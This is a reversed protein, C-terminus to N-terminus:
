ETNRFHANFAYPGGVFKFGHAGAVRTKGRYRPNLGGLKIMVGMTAPDDFLGNSVISNNILICLITMRRM